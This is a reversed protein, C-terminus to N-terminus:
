AIGRIEELSIVSAAYTLAALVDERALMYEDMVEEVTMGGGLEGVVLEVPVRTGEIVPKGFRIESDVIIRPALQVRMEAELLTRACQEQQQTLTSLTLHLSRPGTM